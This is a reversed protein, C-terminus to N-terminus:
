CGEAAAPVVFCFTAGHGVGPSEAWIRGGHFEIIRKVMVLGVGTGEVDRDLREFLGFVLDLYRPDIGQGNDRVFCVEEGGDRRVGVEIRPAPQDGMFKIANVLLNQFVELLRVRDGFVTPLDAAIDVEVGREHIDANVLERAEVALESLAIDESPNVVRGVRSLELLEDLLQNMTEAANGIRELDTRVREVNGAALDRELYGLFGKITVLPSKLDHSVTYTFRELEANRAALERVTAEKEEQAQRREAIEERLEGYLEQLRGAMTNFTRALVGIEDGTTIEAARASLDGEAVRTAARTIRLIPRALRRALLSTGLTLVLALVLGVGFILWAIRRAPAFAEAQAVEVLLALDLDDLWRYVGIVPVARYNPYLAVGDRGSVAADIGETHVGRPFQDRGFRQGSVFVNYRDVLYTEASAGLGTRGQIIRDLEDLNLHAALVGLLEGEPSRLPTSITLSPKLEVPSPYVSQVFTGQLGETFFSARVRYEGEREARTAVVIKGGLRSLLMTEELGSHIHVTSILLDRLRARAILAGASTEPDNLSRAALSRVEPLAAIFIVEERQTAVWRRLQDEELTAFVSIRDIVSQELATRARLFALVGALVVIVLSLILFHAVLRGTLSRHQLQM